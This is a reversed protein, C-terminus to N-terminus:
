MSSTLSYAVNGNNVIPHAVGSADVALGASLAPWVDIPRIV